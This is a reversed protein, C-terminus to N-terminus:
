GACPCARRASAATGPGRDLVAGGPQAGRAIRRQRPMQVGLDALGVPDQGFARAQAPGLM